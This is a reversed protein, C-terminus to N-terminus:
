SSVSRDVYSLIQRVPESLRKPALKKHIWNNDDVRIYKLWYLSDGENHIHGLEYKYGVLCDLESNCIKALILHFYFLNGSKTAPKDATLQVYADANHDRWSEGALNGANEVQVKLQSNKNKIPSIVIQTDNLGLCDRLKKLWIIIKNHEKAFIVYQHRLEPAYERPIDLFFSSLFRHVYIYNRRLGNGSSKTTETLVARAWEINIDSEELHEIDVSILPFGISKCILAKTFDFQHTFEVEIGALLIFSKGIKNGLIAIDLRYDTGFPTKIPFEKRIEKAGALLDGSLTFDSIEQDKFIWPLHRNESLWECLLAYIAEKAKRHKLSEISKSYRLQIEDIVELELNRQSGRPYHRFHAVKPKGNKKLAGWDVWYLLNKNRDVLPALKRAHAHSKIETARIIEALYGKDASYVRIAEDM